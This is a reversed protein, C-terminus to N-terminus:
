SAHQANPLPDGKQVHALEASRSQDVSTPTSGLRQGFVDLFRSFELLRRRSNISGSIRPPSSAAHEAASRLCGLAEQVRQPSGTQLADNVDLCLQALDPFSDTLMSALIRFGEGDDRYGTRAIAELVDYFRGHDFRADLAKQSHRGLHSPLSEFRSVLDRYMLKVEEFMKAIAVSDPAVHQRKPQDAGHKALFEKARTKFIQVQMLIADHDPQSNPIREVLQMVLKTLSEEEDDCNQFQAFPGTSATSLPIGLAVGYVPTGLKGKAVGAEYLIWPRDISRPTLLCVVDSAIELQKMLEPYWEVGYEIGQRGKRDSSRFSRLVGASVNTLLKAFAEALEADRADHSVFVLPSNARESKVLIASSDDKAKQSDAM